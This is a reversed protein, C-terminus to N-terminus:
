LSCVRSELSRPFPLAMIVLRSISTCSITVTSFHSVAGIYVEAACCLLAAAGLHRDLFHLVSLSCHQDHVGLWEVTIQACDPGYATVWSM